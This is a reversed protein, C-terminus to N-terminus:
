GDVGFWYARPGTINAGGFRMHVRTAARCTLSEGYSRVAAHTVQHLLEFEDILICLVLWRACQMAVETTEAMARVTDIQTGVHAAQVDCVDAAVGNEGVRDVVLVGFRALFM